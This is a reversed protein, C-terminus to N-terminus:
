YGLNQSSLFILKKAKMNNGKVIKIAILLKKKLIIEFFFDFFILVIHTPLM